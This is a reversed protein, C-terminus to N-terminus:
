VVERDFPASVPGVLQGDQENFRNFEGSYFVNKSAPVCPALYDAKVVSHNRPYFEFIIVDGPDATVNHPLYQHPDEKSGVKITHTAAATSSSTSKARTTTTATTKAMNQTRTGTGTASPYSDDSNAQTSVLAAQLVLLLWTMLALRVSSPMALINPLITETEALM